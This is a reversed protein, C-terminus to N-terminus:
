ANTVNPYPFYLSTVSLAKYSVRGESEIQWIIMFTVSSSCMAFKRTCITDLDDRGPKRHSGSIQRKWCSHTLFKAEMEKKGISWNLVQFIKYWMHFFDLDPSKGPGEGDYNFNRLHLTRADVAYVEGSVGHHLQSLKGIFKGHYGDAASAVDGSVSSSDLSPITVAVPLVKLRFFGWRM